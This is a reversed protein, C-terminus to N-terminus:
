AHWPSSSMMEEFTTLKNIEGARTQKEVNDSSYFDLRQDIISLQMNIESIFIAFKIHKPHFCPQLFRSKMVLLYQDLILLLDSPKLTVPYNWIKVIELKLIPLAIKLALVLVHVVTYM